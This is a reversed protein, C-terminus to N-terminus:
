RAEPPLEFELWLTREWDNYNDDSVIVIRSAGGETQRVAIGEMNDIDGGAASLIIQGRMREVLIQNRLDERFQAKVEGISQGYYAEFQSVDGNMYTLIRDIRANLQDEVEEDSVAVSDLKAQNLLLKNVLLSNVIECRANEPLSGNQAEMLAFQEEIESLLILEGGVTAVVKDIVQRQAIALLAMM